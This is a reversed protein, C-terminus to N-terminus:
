HHQLMHTLPMIFIGVFLAITGAKAHGYSRAMPYLEVIALFLLIGAVIAFMMGMVFDTMVNKLVLSALLASLPQVLSPVLAFLFARKKNGTSYYIPAAITIGCPINHLAVAIALVIGLTMDHHGAFYLAIGEPLNHLSIAIMTMIGVRSIDGACHDKRDGHHDHHHHEEHCHCGDPIAKDACVALLVGVIAFVVSMLIGMAESGWASFYEESEPMMDMFAASLMVGSALGLALTLMLNNRKNTILVIAAGVLTALGAVTALILAMGSQTDFM